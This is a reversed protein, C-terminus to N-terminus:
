VGVRRFRGDRQRALDRAFAPLLWQDLQALADIEAFSVVQGDSLEATGNVLCSGADRITDRVVALADDLNTGSWYEGVGYFRRVDCFTIQSRMGDRWRRLATSRLLTALRRSVGSKMKVRRVYQKVPTPTPGGSALRDAERRGPDSLRYTLVGTKILIGKQVLGRPGVLYTRVKNVDPHKSEMTRMGFAAPDALWCAEALLSEHFPDPLRAAALVIRQTITPADNM